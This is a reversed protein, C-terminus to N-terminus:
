HRWTHRRRDWELIMGVFLCVLALALWDADHAGWQYTLYSLM